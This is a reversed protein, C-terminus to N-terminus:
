RNGVNMAGKRELTTMLGIFASRIAPDDNVRADNIYLNYQTAGAVRRAVGDAITDTLPRTAARNNLPLVAEIGAEGILRNGSYMSHNTIYGDAYAAIGGDRQKVYKSKTLTNITVTKSKPLSDLKAKAENVANVLSTATGTIVVNANSTALKDVQAKADKVKAVVKDTGTETVEVEPNEAESAKRKEEALRAVKDAVEDVSESNALIEVFEDKTLSVFDEAALGADNLAKPLDDGFKAALDRIQQSVEDSGNSLWTFWQKLAEDNPLKMVDALQEEFGQLSEENAAIMDDVDALNQKLQETNEHADQLRQSAEAWKRLEENTWQSRDEGNAAEINKLDNRLRNEEELAALYDSEAKQRDAALQSQAQYLDRMNEQIAEAKIERERAAILNDIDLILDQVSRGQDDYIQGLESNYQFNTDFEGNVLELAWQLAGLEQATLGTEDGYEEIIRKAREFEEIQTQAEANRGSITEALEAQQDLLTEFDRATTQAVEGYLQLEGIADGTKIDDITEVLGRTAADLRETRKQAKYQDYQYKAFSAVGIVAVVAAIGGALAAMAGGASIAGGTMRAIALGLTGTGTTLTKIAVAVRSIGVMGGGIVKMAAGVALLSPGIAAIKILTNAIDRQASSDLSNFASLMDELANAANIIIPTFAQGLNVQATEFEGRLYELAWGLDGMRAQMMELAYGSRETASIYEQLEASGADMLAIAAPLARAGFITNLTENRTADDLDGFAENLENVLETLGKMKGSTDYVEVGYQELLEKAKGTPAGLRQMFNRLGTGAMEAQLGHDALLGLAGAVDNISYDALGAWGSVYRFSSALGGIEATSKNAAGALADAVDTADEASLDFVKIANVAVTAADAMSIGGAAALQMTAELAGGAIQADTMGGKALESMAQAAETASFQTEKGWYLALDSMEDLASGTLELYGGVQSIANGYEEAENLVQRGFLGVLAAGAATARVGVNMLKDGVNSLAAGGEGLSAFFQGPSTNNLWEDVEVRALEEGLRKAEARAVAMKDKLDDLEKEYATTQESLDKQRATLDKIESGYRKQENGARRMTEVSSNMTNRVQEYEANVSHLKEGNEDLLSANKALENSTQKLQVERNRANRQETSLENNRKKLSRVYVDSQGAGRSLLSAQREELENQRSLYQAEQRMLEGRENHLQKYRQQAVDYSETSEKLAASVSSYRSKADALQSNVRGQEATADRLKNQYDNYNDRLKRVADGQEEYARRTLKSQSAYLAASSPDLKLAKAVQSLSRQTETTVGDIQRLTALLGSADGNFQITLGQYDM